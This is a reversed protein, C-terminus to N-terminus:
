NKKLTKKTKKKPSVKLKRRADHLGGPGKFKCFCLKMANVTTEYPKLSHMEYRNLCFVQRLFSPQYRVPGSCALAGWALVSTHVSIKWEKCVSSLVGIFHLLKLEHWFAETELVIDWNSFMVCTM